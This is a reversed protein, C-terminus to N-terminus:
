LWLGPNIRDVVIEFSYTLYDKNRPLIGAFDAKKKGRLFVVNQHNAFNKRIEEERGVESILALGNGFQQYCTFFIPGWYLAM